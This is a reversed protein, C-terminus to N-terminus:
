GNHQYTPVVTQRQRASVPARMRHRAREPLDSLVAGVDPMSAAFDLDVNGRADNEAALAPLYFILTEDSAVTRADFV